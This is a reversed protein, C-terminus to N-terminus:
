ISKTRWSRSGCVALLANYLDPNAVDGLISTASVVAQAGIVLADAKARAMERARHSEVDTKAQEIATIKDAEATSRWRLLAPEIIGPILGLVKSDLASILRSLWKAKRLGFIDEMKILNVDKLRVLVHADARKTKM